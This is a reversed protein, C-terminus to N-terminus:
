SPLAVTQIIQRSSQETVSNYLWVEVVSACRSIREQTLGEFIFQFHSLVLAHAKAQLKWRTTM